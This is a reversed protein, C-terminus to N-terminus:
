HLHQHHQLVKVNLHLSRYWLFRVKSVGYSKKVGIGNLIYILIESFNPENLRLLFKIQIVKIKKPGDKSNYNINRMNRKFDKSTVDNIIASIKQNILIKKSLTHKIQGNEIFFPPFYGNEDVLIDKFNFQKYKKNRINNNPLIGMTIELLNSPELFIEERKFGDLKIIEDSILSLLKTSEDYFININEKKDLKKIIRHSEVYGCEESKPKTYIFVKM